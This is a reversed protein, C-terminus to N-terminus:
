DVYVCSRPVFYNTFESQKLSIVLDGTIDFTSISHIYSKVNSLARPEVEVGEKGSPILSEITTQEMKTIHKNRKIIIPDGHNLPSGTANCHAVHNDTVAKLTDDSLRYLSYVHESDADTSSELRSFWLNENNYVALGNIPGDLEDQVWLITACSM